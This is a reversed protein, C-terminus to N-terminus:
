PRTARSKSAIASAAIRWATRCAASFGNPSPVISSVVISRCLLGADVILFSGFTGSSLSVTGNFRGGKALAM